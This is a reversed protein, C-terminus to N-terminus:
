TTTLDHLRPFTLECGDTVSFCIPYWIGRPPMREHAILFRVAGRPVPFSAREAIRVRINSRIGKSEGSSKSIPPKM